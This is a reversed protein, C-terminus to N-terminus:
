YYAKGKTFSAVFKPKDMIMHGLDPDDRTQHEEGIRVGFDFRSWVLPTDMTSNIGFLSVITNNVMVTFFTHDHALRIGPSIPDKSRIWPVTGIIAIIIMTLQSFFFLLGLQFGTESITLVVYSTNIISQICTAASQTFSRQAGARGLIAFMTEVGAELLAANVVEMNPSTWWLLPNICGRYPAPLATSSEVQGGLISKIAFYIWTINAPQGVSLIEVVKPAISAPTGDTMFTTSITAHYHDSITTSCIPYSVQLASTSGCVNTGSLLTTIKVNGSDMYVYNVMGPTSDFNLLQQSMNMANSSSINANVLYSANGTPLCSCSTLITSVFGDGVITTGDNATDVLQPAIVFTTNDVNNESRMIGLSSGFILEGIGMEAYLDPWERDYPTGTEEYQVCGLSGAYERYDSSSLTSASYLPLVISVSQIMWLYSLRTLFNRSTSRYSLKTAFSFKEFVSSQVFGCAALSYGESKTILYGVYAAAGSVMAKQTAIFCLIMWIELIVPSAANFLEGFFTLLLGSSSNLELLIALLILNMVLAGFIWKMFILKNEVLEKGLKAGAAQSSAISSSNISQRDASANKDLANMSIQAEDPKSNKGEGTEEAPYVKGSM